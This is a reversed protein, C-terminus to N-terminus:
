SYRAELLAIDYGEADLRALVDVPVTLGASWMIRAKWYSPSHAM